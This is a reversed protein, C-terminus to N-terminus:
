PAAGPVLHLVGDRSSYKHHKQVRYFAEGWRVLRAASADREKLTMGRCAWERRDELMLSLPVACPHQRLQERLIEDHLKIRSTSVQGEVTNTGYTSM